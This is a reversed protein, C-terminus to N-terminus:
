PQSMRMLLDNLMGCACWGFGIKYFYCLFYIYLRVNTGVGKTPKLNDTKAYKRNTLIGFTANQYKLKELDKNTFLRSFISWKGTVFKRLFLIFSPVKKSMKWRLTCLVLRCMRGKKVFFANEPAM